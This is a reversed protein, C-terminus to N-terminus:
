APEGSQANPRRIIRGAEWAFAIVIFFGVITTLNFLLVFGALFAVFALGAAALLGREDQRRVARWAMVGSALSLVGVPSLAAGTTLGFEWAMFVPPAVVLYLSAAVAATVSVYHWRHVIAAVAGTFAATAGGLEFAFVAWRADESSATLWQRLIIGWALLGVALLVILIPPHQVRSRYM